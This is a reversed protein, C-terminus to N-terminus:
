AGLRRAMWDASKGRYKYFRNHAVHNGDEIMLLETPRTAWTECLFRVGGEVRFIVEVIFQGSPLTPHTIRYKLDDRTRTEVRGFRMPTTM